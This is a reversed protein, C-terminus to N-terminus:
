SKQSASMPGGFNLLSERPQRDEDQPGSVGMHYVLRLERDRMWGTSGIMLGGWM